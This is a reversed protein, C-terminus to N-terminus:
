LKDPEVVYLQHYQPLHLEARVVGKKEEEVEGLSKVLGRQEPTIYRLFPPAFRPKNALL